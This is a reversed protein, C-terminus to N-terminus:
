EIWFSESMIPEAVEVDRFIKGRGFFNGADFCVSYNRRRQRLKFIKLAVNVNLPMPKVAFFREAFNGVDDPFFERQFIRQM